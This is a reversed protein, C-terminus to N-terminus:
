KLKLTIDYAGPSPNQVVEVSLGSKGPDSYKKPLVAEGTGGPSQHTNIMVKYWGAPAGAREKTTLSYNGNTIKSFASAPAKNGKEADPVFTLQADKLPEGDVTVKGSVPYLTGLGNGCGSLALVLVGFLWTPCSSRMSQFEQFDFVL